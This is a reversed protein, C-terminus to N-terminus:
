SYSRYRFQADAAEDTAGEGPPVAAPEDAGETDGPAESAGDPAESGDEPATEGPPLGPPVFSGAGPAGPMGSAAGEEPTPAPKGQWFSKMPGQLLVALPIEGTESPAPDQLLEEVGVLDRLHFGNGTTRALISLDRGSANTLDRDIALGAPWYMPVQDFMRTAPNTQDLYGQRLLVWFPYQVLETAQGMATNVQRPYATRSEADGVVGEEVTLGLGALWDELGSKKPTTDRQSVMDYTVPDLLVVVKGGRLMYQELQYTQHESINDPAVLVLVDIGPPVPADLKVTTDLGVGFTSRLQQQLARFRGTQAAAFPNHAPGPTVLAIEVPDPETMTHLASILRYELQSGQNILQDLVEKKDGLELVLSDYGESIRVEGEVIGQFGHKQVGADSAEKEGDEDELDVWRVKLNGRSAARMEDLLFELYRRQPEGTEPVDNWFVKVTVPDELRGLIARSGEGLTYLGEETLDLRVFTRAFVANVLVLVVLLLLGSIWSLRVVNQNPSSM